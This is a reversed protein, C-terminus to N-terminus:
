ALNNLVSALYKMVQTLVTIAQRSRDVRGKSPNQERAPSRADSQYPRDAQYCNKAAM